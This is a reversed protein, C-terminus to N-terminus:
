LVLDFIKMLFKPITIELNIDLSQNVDGYMYTSRYGISIKCINHM